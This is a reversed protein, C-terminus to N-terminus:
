SKLCFYFYGKELMEEIVEVDRIKGMVGENEAALAYNRNDFM